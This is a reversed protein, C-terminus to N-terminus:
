RWMRRIVRNRFWRASALVPAPLRRTVYRSEFHRRLREAEALFEASPEPLTTSIREVAMAIMTLADRRSLDRAAMDANHYVCSLSFCAERDYRDGIVAHINEASLKLVKELFPNTGSRSMSGPMERYVTLVEPINAVRHSRAIRSWLEYDEPPQREPDETYGGLERLVDTRIMMSAHVFPNDFLLFLKLADPMSAHRHYRDSPEDGEYIRAWTGVMAVDPNADLFSKQKALRGPLVLDDQDQRAIYKGRALEIGRNLTGALGRNSHRHLVLREDGTLVIMSEVIQACRDPSGDDFVLIECRDITQDLVSQLSQVITTEGRYMPMVVSVSVDQM